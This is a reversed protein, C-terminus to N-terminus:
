TTQTTRWQQAILVSWVLFGVVLSGAIADSWIFTHMKFSFQSLAGYFYHATSSLGTGAYIGLLLYSLWYKQKGYLWYGLIGIATMVGWTLFVGSTSIWEPEPYLDVYLANDTYHLSTIIINLVLIIQLGTKGNM